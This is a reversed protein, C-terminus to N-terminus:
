CFWQTCHPVSNESVGMNRAMNEPSIGQFKPCIPWFYISDTGGIFRIRSLLPYGLSPILQPCTQRSRLSVLDMILVVLQQSIDWLHMHTIDHETNHTYIYM